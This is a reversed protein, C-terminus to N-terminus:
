GPLFELSIDAAPASHTLTGVSIFDVGVRTVQRINDLTINGSAEVLARGAIVEVARKMRAPSMNDLMIIDAGAALAQRVQRLNGCEVEIKLTPPARRRAAAVAKAISGAASIHNDKIMVGDFLGLRHNHGGGARVAAKELVRLGPTTKRTDLLTCGSGRLEETYRRTLTAIGSLHRLFNLATREGALLAQAPGRVRGLSRGAAVQRGETVQWNLRVKEDLCRFVAEAAQCGALVLGERAVLRAQAQQSPGLVALSTIDGGGLDEALALEVLAQWSGAVSQKM